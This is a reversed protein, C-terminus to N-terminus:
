HPRVASGPRAEEQQHKEEERGEGMGRAVDDKRLGCALDKRLGGLQKGLRRLDFGHSVDECRRANGVGDGASGRAGAAHFADGAVGVVVDRREVEGRAGRRGIRREKGARDRGGYPAENTEGLNVKRAVVQSPGQRRSESQQRIQAPHIHAPIPL